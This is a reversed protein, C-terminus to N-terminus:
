PLLVKLKVVLGSSGTFFTLEGLLLRARHRLSASGIAQEAIKQHDLRGQLGPLGSGNDAVQLVMGAGACSIVVRFDNANGHRVGNAVAEALFLKLSHAFIEPVRMQPADFVLVIDVRWHHKLAEIQRDMSGRFDVSLSAMPSHTDALLQRLVVQLELLSKSVDEVPATKGENREFSSMRMSIASLTQLAGDHIDRALRNWGDRAATEISHRKVLYRDIETRIQLAAIEAIPKLEPQISGSSALVLVGSADNGLRVVVSQPLNYSDMVERPLANLCVYAEQEKGLGDPVPLERGQRVSGHSFEAWLLHPEYPEDWVILVRSVGTTKALHRLMPELEPALTEPNATDVIPWAALDALRKSQWELILGFYVFMGGAVVQYAGRIVIFSANEGLPDPSAAAISWYIAVTAAASAAAGKWGWQLTSSFLAFTFFILLPSTPGDTAMALFGFLALDIAQVAIAANQLIPRNAGVIVLLIAYLLYTFLLQYTITPFYVPQLSDLYIAILSFIALFLRLAAILSLSSRMVGAVLTKLFQNVTFNHM